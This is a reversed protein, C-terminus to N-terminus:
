ASQVRNLLFKGPVPALGDAGVVLGTLDVSVIKQTLKGLGQFFSVGMCVFKLVKIESVDFHGKFFFSFFALIPRLFLFILLFM